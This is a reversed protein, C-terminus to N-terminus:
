EAESEDDDDTEDAVSGADYAYSRATCGEASDERAECGEVWTALGDHRAPAAEETYRM